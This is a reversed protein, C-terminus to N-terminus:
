KSISMDDSKTWVVQLMASREINQGPWDVPDLKLHVDAVPDM